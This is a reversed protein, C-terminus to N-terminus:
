PWSTSCAQKSPNSTVLPGQFLSSSPQILCSLLEYISSAIMWLSIVLWNPNTRQSATLFTIGHIHSIGHLWATMQDLIVGLSSWAIGRASEQGRVHDEHSWQVAWVHGPYIARKEWGSEGQNWRSCKVQEWGVQPLRGSITKKLLVNEFHLSLVSIAPVYITQVGDTACYLRM